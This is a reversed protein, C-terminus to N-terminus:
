TRDEVTDGDHLLLRVNGTGDASVLDTRMGAERLRARLRSLNVDWVRRLAGSQDDRWIERAVAEWPAPGGIAALESLIRAAVGGLVVPPQGVRRIEVSDYWAVLHLPGNRVTDARTPEQSQLAMEVAEFARGQLTWADGAVLPRADEGRIRLSWREGDTWVWADADGEYGPALSPRPRAFLSCVGLLAQRPMGDGEIALVADPLTVEVVHLTLGETLEVKLGPALTIESVPKGGVVFRRRLALLKLAGDRHSVM